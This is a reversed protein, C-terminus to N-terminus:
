RLIRPESLGQTLPLLNARCSCTILTNTTSTPPVGTLSRAVPWRAWRWNSDPETIDHMYIHVEAFRRARAADV